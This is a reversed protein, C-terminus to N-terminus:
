SASSSPSRKRAVNLCNGNAETEIVSRSFRINAESTSIVPQAPIKGVPSRLKAVSHPSPVTAATSSSASPWPWTDACESRKKSGTESGTM